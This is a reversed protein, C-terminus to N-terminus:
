QTHKGAAKAILSHALALPFQTGSPSAHVLLSQTVNDIESVSIREGNCFAGQGLAASFTRDVWAHPGGSFEVVASAIPQGKRLVALCHCALNACRSTHFILM